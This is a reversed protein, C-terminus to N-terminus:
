LGFVEEKIYKAFRYTELNSRSNELMPNLTETIASHVRLRQEEPSSKLLHALANLTERAKHAEVYNGNIFQEIKDTIVSNEPMSFGLATGLDTVKEVDDDKIAQEFEQKRQETLAAAHQLKISEALAKEEETIESKGKDEQPKLENKKRKLLRGFKEKNLLIVGSSVMILGLSGIIMGAAQKVAKQDELNCPIGKIYCKLGRKLRKFYNDLQKSDASQISQTAILGACIIALIKSFYNKTDM